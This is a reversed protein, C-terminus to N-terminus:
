IDQFLIAATKSVNSGSCQQLDDVVLVATELGLRQRLVEAAVLVVDCAEAVAAGARQGVASVGGDPLLIAAAVQIHLGDLPRVSRQM